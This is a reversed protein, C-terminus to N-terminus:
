FSTKDDSRPDHVQREAYIAGNRSVRRWPRAKTLAIAFQPAERDLCALVFDPKTELACQNTWNGDPGIVGSPLVAAFQAPVAVSVWYTNAAAHGQALVGFMADSSHSSFLLCDIGLKEYELFLEPFNVEICLACGFRFGDVDFVLPEFGPSFFNHIENSSCLRKDYRGALEGIDSIVYLSNHPRNPPTLRHNAGMVIWVGLDKALAATLALENALASWDTDEDRLPYGSMAGEAFHVLGAGAAHAQRVLRRVVAGNCRPDPSTPSQAAAIFM